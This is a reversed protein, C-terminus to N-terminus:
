GFCYSCPTYGYSRALEINYIYYRHGDIYHCDVRHYKAGAAVTVFVAHDYFFDYDEQLANLRGTLRMTEIIEDSYNGKVIDLEDTLKEIKTDRLSITSELSSVQTELSSIDAKLDKNIGALRGMFICALFLLTLGVCLVVNKFQHQKEQAQQQGDRAAWLDERTRSLMDCVRYFAEHSVVVDSDYTEDASQAHGRYTSQVGKKALEKEIDLVRLLDYDSKLSYKEDM